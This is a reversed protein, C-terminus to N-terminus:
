KRSAGGVQYVRLTRRRAYDRRTRLSGRSRTSTGARAKPLGFPLLWEVELWEEPVWEDLWLEDLLAWLDDPVWEAELDDCEEADECEVEVWLDELWPLVFRSGFCRSVNM